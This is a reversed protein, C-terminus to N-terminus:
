MYLHLATTALPLSTTTQRGMGVPLEPVTVARSPARVQAQEGPSGAASRGPGQELHAM